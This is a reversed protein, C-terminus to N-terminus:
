SGGPRYSDPRTVACWLLLAAIVWSKGSERCWRGATFQNEVFLRIWDKQYSTPEFGVVQRFFQVPDGSLKLTKEEWLRDVLTEEARIKGRKGLVEPPRFTRSKKVLDEYKKALEVLEAEIGRYDVYDAFFKKYIKAGQILGRLRLIESKDLGPQQLASLAASLVKLTDRNVAAGEAVESSFYYDASSIEALRSSRIRSALVRKSLVGLRVWKRLSLIL